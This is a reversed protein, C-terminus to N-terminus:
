ELAALATRLFKVGDFAIDDPTPEIDRWIAVAASFDGLAPGFSEITLWRDYGLERLTRLLAPWQIHGSGPTGRDNESIQVHKLHRGIRVCAAALDKEEINAHFTDFAVGVRPHGVEACLATVDDATNLFFTEFRNLPEIALTVNCADLTEAVSQYGEVAWQWEDQTRRRGPLYGVPCYLPGDILTAGTEATAEIAARLHTRTERRVNADESILSRGPPIISCVTCVLGNAEVGARIEAAPFGAPDFLPVEVGDFGREKLRPLLHLHAPTFEATWIFMNVGLKM